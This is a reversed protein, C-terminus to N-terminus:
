DAACCGEGLNNKLLQARLVDSGKTAVVEGALVGALIETFKENKAGLRVTRVDFVKFSEDSDFFGKDRVFVVHCCGEWHVAENPVVIADPEQRLVIRGLGFTENRLQGAPNPLDARVKVTRTREDATTSIWTLKGGVGQRSGDPLFQVPQGLALKDAEELRVDLMLWMRSTDAVQFLVRSTDVVEGAVVQREVVVGDLPARLPVLNGTTSRPDLEAAISEPLGLLRLRAVAEDEGLNRLSEVDVPLGLNVLTEQAGLVRARAQVSAADAEQARRGPVIGQSSLGDLRSFVKRQLEEQALAQILETKARGVEKADVVALVEGARVTDGVYKEVRWVTGPARASLSALRTPDYRVEGTAEVTEQIPQRQVLAVDLGAERVADLSAFQLRRQHLKCVSNNRAREEVSLGLAARELDAPSVAPTEKLEAVDPHCLPCNSVGHERCWGYQPGRPLLDANCEVCQSEPVGHEACWDDREAPEAGVLTSFKPVKWEFRHGCYGVGGIVGLVMLTPFKNWLWALPRFRRSPRARDEQPEVAAPSTAERQQAQGDPKDCSQRTDAGQRDLTLPNM